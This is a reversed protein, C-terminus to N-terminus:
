IWKKAFTRPFGHYIFIRTATDFLSLNSYKLDTLIRLSPLQASARGSARTKYTQPAVALQLAVFIKFHVGPPVKQFHREPGARLRQFEEM